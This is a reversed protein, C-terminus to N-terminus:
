NNRKKFYDSILVLTIPVGLLLLVALLDSSANDKSLLLKYFIIIIISFLIGIFANSGSDDKKGTLKTGILDMFLYFGIVFGIM